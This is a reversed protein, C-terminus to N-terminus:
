LTSDVITHRHRPLELGFCGGAAADRRPTIAELLPSPRIAAISRRAGITASCVQYGRRSAGRAGRRSRCPAGTRAGSTRGSRSRQRGALEIPEDLAGAALRVGRRPDVPRVVPQRQGRAVELEADPELGLAHLVEHELVVGTSASRSTTVFSRRSRTSSSTSPQSSSCSIACANVTCGYRQGSSRSSPLCGRARAARYGCSRDCTTRASCRSSRTRRRSRRRRAARDSRAAVVARDRRRLQGLGGRTTSGSCVFSRM